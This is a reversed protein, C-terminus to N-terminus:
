RRGRYNEYIAWGFLALAAAYVFGCFLITPVLNHDPM